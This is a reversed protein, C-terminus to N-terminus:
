PATSGASPRSRSTRRTRSTVFQLDRGEILQRITAEPFEFLSEKIIAEDEYYARANERSQLQDVLDVVRSGSIAKSVAVRVRPNEFFHRMRSIFEDISLGPINRCYSVYRWVAIIPDIKDLGYCIDRIPNQYSLTELATAM